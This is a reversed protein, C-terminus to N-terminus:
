LELVNVNDIVDDIAVNRSDNSVLTPNGIKFFIVQPIQNPPRM